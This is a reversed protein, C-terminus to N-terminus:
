RHFLFKEVIFGKNVRKYITKYNLRTQKVIMKLKAIEGPTLTKPSFFCKHLLRDEEEAEKRKVNEQDMSTPKRKVNEQDLLRQRKYVDLHTYSVPQLYRKM